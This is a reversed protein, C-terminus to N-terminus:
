ASCYLKTIVLHHQHLQLQIPLHGCAECIIICQLLYTLLYLMDIYCM